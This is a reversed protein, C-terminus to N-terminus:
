VLSRLAVTETRSVAGFCLRYFPLSSHFSSCFYALGSIFKSSLLEYEFSATPVVILFVVGVMKGECVCECARLCELASLYCLGLYTDCHSHKTAKDFHKELKETKTQFKSM